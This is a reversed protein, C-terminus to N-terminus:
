LKIHLVMSKYYDIRYNYDITTSNCQTIYKQYPHVTERAKLKEERKLLAKKRNEEIRKRQEETLEM